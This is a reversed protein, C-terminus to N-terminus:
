DKPTWTYVKPFNHISKCSCIQLNKWTIYQIHCVLDSNMARSDRLSIMSMDIERMESLQLM